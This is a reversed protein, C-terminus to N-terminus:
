KSVKGFYNITPQKEWSGWIAKIARVERTNLKEKFLQNNVITNSSKKLPQWNLKLNRKQTKNMHINKPFHFWFSSVSFYVQKKNKKKMWIRMEGTKLWTVLYAKIDAKAVAELDKLLHAKISFCSMKPHDFLSHVSQNILFNRCTAHM